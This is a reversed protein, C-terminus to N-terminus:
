PILNGSIQYMCYIKDELKDSLTKITDIEEMCEHLGDLLVEIDSKDKCNPCEEFSSACGNCRKCRSM